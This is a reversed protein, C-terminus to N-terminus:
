GAFDGACVLEVSGGGHKNIWQEVEDRFCALEWVYGRFAAIPGKKVDDGGARLKTRMLEFMLKEALCAQFDSVTWMPDSPRMVSKSDVLLTFKAPRRRSRARCITEATTRGPRATTSWTSSGTPPASIAFDRTVFRDNLVFNDKRPEAGARLCWGDSWDNSVELVWLRPYGHCPM